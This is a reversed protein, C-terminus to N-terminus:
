RAFFLRLEEESLYYNVVDVCAFIQDFGGMDMEELTGLYFNVGPLNRKAFSLMNPSTDLAHVEAGRHFFYHTMKGTGCGIELIKGRPPLLKEIINQYDEYPFNKMLIDYIRAFEKYM